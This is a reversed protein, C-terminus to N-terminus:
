FKPEEPGDLKDLIFSPIATGVRIALAGVIEATDFLSAGINFAAKGTAKLADGVHGDKMESAATKFETGVSAVDKKVEKVNKYIKQTGYKSSIDSVFDHSNSLFGRIGDSM